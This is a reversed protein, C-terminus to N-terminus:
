RFLMGKKKSFKSRLEELSPELEFYNYYLAEKIAFEDIDPNYSSIAEKALPLVEHLTEYDEDNLADENFGEEGSSVDYDDDLNM